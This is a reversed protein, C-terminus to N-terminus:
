GLHVQKGNITMADLTLISGSEAQTFAPGDVVTHSKGAHVSLLSTVRQYVSNFTQVVSDAIMRLKPTHVALEPGEVTVGKEGSLRLAGNVACLDVDGQFALVAKGTGHLVGIGYYTEERGIILLVDGPAPEYLFALALKAAVSRGDPLEVAVERGKVETVCAPGLYEGSKVKAAREGTSTATSAM